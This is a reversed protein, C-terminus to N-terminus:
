VNAVQCDVGTPIFASGPHRGTEIGAVRTVYEFQVFIGSPHMELQTNGSPAGSCQWTQSLSESYSGGLSANVADFGVSVDSSVSASITKQISINCTNSGGGTVRCTGIVEPSAVGEQIKVNEVRSPAFLEQTSAGGPQHTTDGATSTDVEDVFSRANKFHESIATQSITQTDISKSETAQAPVAVSTGFLGCALLATATVSKKLTTM